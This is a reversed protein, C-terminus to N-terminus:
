QLAWVESVGARMHTIGGNRTNEHLEYVRRYKYLIVEPARYVRLGVPRDIIERRSQYKNGRRWSRPAHALKVQRQPLVLERDIM